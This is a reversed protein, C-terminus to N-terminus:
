RRIELGTHVTSMYKTNLHTKNSLTLSSMEQNEKSPHAFPKAVVMNFQLFTQILGFSYFNIM